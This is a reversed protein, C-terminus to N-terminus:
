VEAWSGSPLFYIVDASVAYGIVRVIDASGSPATEVIAGPTTGVYLEAGVTWAYTDDRVFSGALATIMPNTDTQAEVSIGLMGTATAEADADTLLWKGGSGLYCLEGIAITAGAAITNTTLGTATHDADPTADIRLEQVDTQNKGNCDLVGGLQPTTDTVINPIINATGDFSVGGITRATELATATDANGTLAGVFATSTISTAGTVVGADVNITGDLVIASGGAPTLNLAGTTATITNGNTSINDVALAGTIALAGTNSNYALNTNTKPQLDGTAATVFALFCTTDTAENAATITDPVINSTGDFSVGGITRVTELATATDANGTLAGVFATSTISTAGTIVGADVSITGDLVIASGAAPTINVAGTGASITNGNITLNDVTLAGTIGLAGTSSNYTLNTTTKPGLDGTAATFFCIFCSTDTAENAVTITTPVGGAGLDAIAQATVTKLNDSDSVDQLLVKDTGAVTVATITAGSLIEQIGAEALTNNIWASGSWKIVEGTAVTTITVDGIDNLEAVSGTGILNQWSGNEYGRFKETTSLYFTDGNVGSSPDATHSGLNIGANTANPNFTQKFEGYTNIKNDLVMNTPNQESFTAIQAPTTSKTVGAASADDAFIKDDAALAVIDDKNTATNEDAM